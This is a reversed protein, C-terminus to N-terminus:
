AWDNSCCIAYIDRYGIALVAAPPTVPAPVPVAFAFAFAVSSATIYDQLLKQITAKQAGGALQLATKGNKTYIV